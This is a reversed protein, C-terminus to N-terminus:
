NSNCANIEQRLEFEPQWSSLFNMGSQYDKAPLESYRPVGYQRKLAKWIASFTKARVSKDAYANSDKGGLCQIVTRNGVNKLRLEQIGNIRMTDELATIRKSNNAIQQNILEQTQNIANFIALTMENAEEESRSVGVIENMTM